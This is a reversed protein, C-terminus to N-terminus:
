TRRSATSMRKCGGDAWSNWEDSCSKNWLPAGVQRGRVAHEAVCGTKQGSLAEKKPKQTRM